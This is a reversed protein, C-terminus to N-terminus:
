LFIISYIFSSLLYSFVVKLLELYFGLCYEWIRAFLVFGVVTINLITSFVNFSCDYHPRLGIDLLMFLLFYIHYFVFCFLVLLTLLICLSTLFFSVIVGFNQVLIFDPKRSKVFPHSRKKYVIWSVYIFHFFIVLSSQNVLSVVIIFAPFVAALVTGYLNGM